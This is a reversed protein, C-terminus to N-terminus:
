KEGRIIFYKGSQAIIKSNKFNKEFLREIYPKLHKQIVWYVQGDKKLHVFCEKAAEELFENGLHQAPNSLILNYTREKVASFLDSLFVEVNKLKNLEANEEALSVIRINVDLLHVHARENLKAATFGIVGLGCGLDAIVMRDKIEVQELLLKSGEDIKDKSFVGPRTKFKLDVGRIIGTILNDM